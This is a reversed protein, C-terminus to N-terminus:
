LQKIELPTLALLLGPTVAGCHRLLTGNNGIRLMFDRLLARRPHRAEVDHQALIEPDQYLGYFFIDILRTPGNDALAESSLARDPQNCSAAVPRADVSFQKDLFM